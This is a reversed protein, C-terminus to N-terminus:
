RSGGGSQGACGTGQDGSERHGDARQSHSELGPQAEAPGSICITVGNFDAHSRM